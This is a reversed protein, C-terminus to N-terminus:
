CNLIVKGNSAIKRFEDMGQMFDALKLEKAIKSGFIKGGAALDDAVLNEYYEKEEPTFHKTHWGQLSFGRM